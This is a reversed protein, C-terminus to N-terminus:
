PLITDFLKRADEPTISQIIVIPLLEKGAQGHRLWFLGGATQLLEFRRDHIKVDDDRNYLLDLVLHLEPALYGQIFAEVKAHDAIDAALMELAQDKKGSEYLFAALELDRESASFTLDAAKGQLKVGSLDLIHDFLDSREKFLTLTHGEEDRSLELQWEPLFHYFREAQSNPSKLVLMDTSHVCSYVMAGLMEDMKFQDPTEMELVGAQNLSEYASAKFAELAEEDLGETPDDVGFILGPAFFQALFWLEDPSLTLSLITKSQTIKM